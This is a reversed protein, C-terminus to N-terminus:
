KRLVQLLLFVTALLLQLIAWISRLFQAPSLTEMQIGGLDSHERVPGPHERKGQNRLWQGLSGWDHWYGAGGEEEPSQLCSCGGEHEERFHDAGWLGGPPLLRLGVPALQDAARAEPEAGASAAEQQGASHPAGLLWLSFTSLLRSFHWHPLFHWFVASLSRSFCCPWLQCYIECSSVLIKLTSQNHLNRHLTKQLCCFDTFQLFMCKSIFYNDWRQCKGYLMKLIVNM